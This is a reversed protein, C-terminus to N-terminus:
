GDDTRDDPVIEWRRGPADIGVHEERFVWRGFNSEAPFHVGIIRM